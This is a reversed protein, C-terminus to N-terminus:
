APVAGKREMAVEPWPWPLLTEMAAALNILRQEAHRLRGAIQEPSWGMALHDRVHDGLPNLREIRSL